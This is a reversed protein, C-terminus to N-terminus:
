LAPQLLGQPDFAAAVLSYGDCAGAPEAVPTRAGAPELRFTVATIVALRGMSGLLLAPLDYGVVDKLVGGGATVADGSPLVAEIGCLARRPVEGRAILAGVHEGRPTAQLGVIDLKDGAAATRVTAVPAGAEARLTLSQPAAAVGNLHRLSLTVVGGPGAGAGSRVAFHAQQLSLVRVAAALAVANAPSVTDGEVARAGAARRLQTRLAEEM